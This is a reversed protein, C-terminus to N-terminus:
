LAESSIFSRCPAINWIQSKLGDYVSGDDFRIVNAYTPGTETSSWFYNSGFGGLDFAKLNTFMAMLEDRSPLFYDQYHVVTMLNIFTMIKIELDGINSGNNAPYKTLATKIDPKLIANDPIIIQQGVQIEPVWETFGNADLVAQWNLLSGTANLICDSINEGNRVIYIM